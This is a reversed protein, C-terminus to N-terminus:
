ENKQEKLQEEMLELIVVASTINPKPRNKKDKNYFDVLKEIEELCKNKYQEIADARASDRERMLRNIETILKGKNWTEYEARQRNTM